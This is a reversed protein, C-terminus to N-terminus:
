TTFRAVIDRLREATQTLDRTSQATSVAGATTRNAEETVSGVGDAIRVAGAAVESIGYSMESTTASQQKVAAAITTQIENVRAIVGSIQQIATVANLADSQIADIRAAIDETARSTEQALEKVEGAVVAFGTGAEGARAAEISANLALMNTQGAIATIAKLVEGIQASSTALSGIAQETNRAADVAETAVTVAQSAGRSIENISASMEEVGTSVRTLHDSVADAVTGAQEARIATSEAITRMEGGVEALRTSTTAVEDADARLGHVAERVRTLAVNLAIGMQGVEDRTDVVVQQTLDGEALARLATVIRRLPVTASRYFGVLLYAVLLLAGAAAAEVVHAKAEFGGIRTTLLADLQSGLGDALRVVATWAADGAAATVATLRGSAAAQNIQALLAAVAKQEAEVLPRVDAFQPRATRALATAMGAEVMQQTGALVGASGALRLQAARIARAPRDAALLAEDGARGAEDVLGPLRFVLADMAYYSDLDPDLTLNSADSVAIVLGLLAAAAKGYADYAAQGTGSSAAATLGARATAWTASVGLERGHAKDVADVAEIAATTAAEDVPSGAVATHRDRVTAATLTLLPRMYTVGVREKASFKVQATQIGVYGWTVFGLPLLLVVTVLVIKYAYRLRGLLVSAPSFL